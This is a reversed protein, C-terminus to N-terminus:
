IEKYVRDVHFEINFKHIDDTSYDLDVKPYTKPFVGTLKYKASVSGDRDYMQVYITKAYNMKPYYLGQDNMILKRWGLFYASVIDPIPNLFEAQANEIDFFGAYGKVFGGYRITSITTISYDGFKM